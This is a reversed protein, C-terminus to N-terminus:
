LDICFCRTVPLLLFDGGGGGGGLGNGNGYFHFRLTITTNTVTATIFLLYTVTASHSLLENLGSSLHTYLSVKSPTIPLTSYNHPHLLNDLGHCYTSLQKMMEEFANRWNKTKIEKLYFDCFNAKYEKTTLAYPFRLSNSWSQHWYLQFFSM